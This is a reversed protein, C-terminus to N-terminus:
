YRDLEEKLRPIFKLIDTNTDICDADFRYFDDLTKGKLEKSDARLRGLKNLKFDELSKLCYHHLAISSSKHPTFANVVQTFDESVAIFGKKYVMFHPNSGACLTREGPKILIAKTHRNEIHQLDMCKTYSEIVLKNKPKDILGNSGFMIWSINFSGIHPQDYKELIQPVNDSSKPVIFEDGDIIAAYKTQKAYNYIFHTYAPMQVGGDGPFNTITIFGADIEKKLTESLKIKSDNDYLFFHEVGVLRHYHIWEKIDYEDRLISCISLEYTM